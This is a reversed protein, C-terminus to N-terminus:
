RFIIKNQGTRLPIFLEQMAGVRTARITLHLWHQVKQSQCNCCYYAGIIYLMLILHITPPEGAYFTRWAETIDCAQKETIRVANKKKKLKRLKLKEKTCKYIIIDTSTNFHLKSEERRIETVLAGNVITLAQTVKHSSM